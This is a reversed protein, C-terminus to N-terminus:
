GCLITDLLQKEEAETAVEENIWAARLAKLVEQYKPGPPIKRARLDLGTTCPKIKQWVSLYQDIAYHITNENILLNFVYLSLKDVEEFIETQESPSASKIVKKNRMLSGTGVTIQTLWAPLKLRKSISAVQAESLSHLWLVYFLTLSIPYPESKQKIEWKDQPLNNKGLGIWGEIEKNFILDPHIAALVGLSELRALMLMLNNEQLIRNLEHRLRDGSVKDLLPLANELLELTRSEIQYEFRQEFRIARLIRTPDDVFSLSHLVRVVGNNIDTMGGWYDHLEGYHSGDLRLALTNITFDRRHLDLKISGREVTPLVTPASYFERRASVLDLSDPFDTHIIKQDYKMSLLKSLEETIKSIQWKATGFRKHIIVRGGYEKVLSNGLEIADGEVVLDFDQSAKELILDRVFGGVIYVAHHQDEALEAAAKLLALRSASLQSELRTSIDKIGNGKEQATLIKLLDTRTVIGIIEQTEPDIVPIQGWGTDTMVKQLAEISDDPMITAGGVSMVDGANLKLKHNLTRDVARRTILGIVQGKEVVPYGEYGYRQMQEAVEAVPTEPSLLQPGRSMIEAVTVVPRVFKSIKKFLEAQIAEIGKGHILAAAARRHGGGGFYKAIEGVNVQDTTARAIMQVGSSTLILLILADPDLLDRLKHAISSLEETSQKANGTAVLINAGHVQHATVTKRLSEYIEQQEESLPHNLFDNVIQLSANQELLFAVARADRANTRTYTLAGTDEYIGLLLLTAQVMTLRLGREQIGEVLITTAAGTKEIILHWDKSLGPRIAHHDVVNIKTKNIVGKMSVLSQTDVLTVTKVNRKPIDRPDVFKLDAGYLTLFAQVNRNLRRPLVALAREELLYAGLMSALADFDAQEHTLIIHM